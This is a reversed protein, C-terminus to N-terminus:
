KKREIKKLPQVREFMKPKIYHDTMASAKHGALKQADMGQANADTTTKARLDHFHVDSLEAKKKLRYFISSFGDYTYKTGKRSYFLYMGQVPRKISKAEAITQTVLYAEAFV